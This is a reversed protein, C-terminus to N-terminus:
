IADYIWFYKGARNMLKELEYKGDNGDHKLYKWDICQFRESFQPFLKITKHEWNKM